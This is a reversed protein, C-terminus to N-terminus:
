QKARKPDYRGVALSRGGAHGTLRKPNADRGTEEMGADAVPLGGLHLVDHPELYVVCVIFM